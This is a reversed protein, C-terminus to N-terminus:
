VKLPEEYTDIADRQADCFVIDWIQTDTHPQATKFTGCDLKAHSTVLTQQMAKRMM